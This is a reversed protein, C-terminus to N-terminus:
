CRSRSDSKRKKNLGFSFHRFLPAVRNIGVSHSNRPSKQKKAQAIMVDVVLSYVSKVGHAAKDITCHERVRRLGAAGMRHALGPDALLRSIADAM